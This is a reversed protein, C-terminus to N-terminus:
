GSLHVAAGPTGITAQIGSRGDQQDRVRLSALRQAEATSVPRGPDPPRSRPACSALGNALGIVVAAAMGFLAVM